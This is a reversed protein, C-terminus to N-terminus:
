ESFSVFQNARLATLMRELKAHSKPLVASPNTENQAASRVQGPVEQCFSRLSILPAEIRRRSGHMRPLIKQLVILDLIGPLGKVGAQEAMAAFRVAEYFVRHGFELGFGSLLAHLAHLAKVVEAQESSPRNVHWNDDLAIACLGRILEKDGTACATPKKPNLTLDSTRVRFELTNARDLVKPSFMYTTEDVNVTGVIWLNKPFPVRAGRALPRWSGDQKDLRLDPICPQGSEMGSLVDAFYREVHALNMEDLVLLYPHQPDKHARLMFGLTDPVNWAPAGDRSPKLGDEFGFLADAGTWDPRVPVVLLRDAAGLWEGLRVAIQSKGSGSLGTLIVLPKTMLSALFTSATLAHSEGFNVGCDLLANAFSDAAEGLDLRRALIDDATDTEPIEVPVQVLAASYAALLQDLEEHLKSFDIADVKSEWTVYSSGYRAPEHGINERFWERVTKLGLVDPWRRQPEETESLGRCLLLVGEERFLLLVPYIGNSVREEAGLWAMWPIRAVNGQGFSVKVRLGHYENTYAQTKLDSAELAQRVFAKLQGEIDADTPKPVIEFGRDRLVRFCTSDEGGTFTARDLPEGTAAAVALSLVHKPPYRKGDHLLDYSTSRADDPVDELDVRRLAELIHERTVTSTIEAVSESKWQDRLPPLYFDLDKRGYRQEVGQRIKWLERDLDLNNLRTVERKDRDSFHTAVARRDTQGFFREFVDPFLLFLVMHRFQRSDADPLASVWKDFEWADSLLRAQENSILRKFRTVLVIAFVLERWQNQNFGPGASGVGSLVEERLWPSDAPFIDGSWGWISQITQRKKAASIKRPCLYLVWMLEAALQIGAAGSPVIQAKLKEHFGGEGEDPRQVYFKDLGALAEPTWLARGEVFVSGEGLLAVDRWRAAAELIPGVEVEGCYRSM